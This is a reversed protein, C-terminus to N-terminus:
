EQQSAVFESYHKSLPPSQRLDSAIEAPVAIPEINYHTALYDGLEKRGFKRLLWVNQGPKLNALM